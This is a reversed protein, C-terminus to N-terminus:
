RIQSIILFSGVGRVHSFTVQKNVVYAIYGNGWEGNQALLLWHSEDNQDFWLSRVRGWVGFPPKTLSIGNNWYFRPQHFVIIQGSDNRSGRFIRQKTPGPFKVVRWFSPGFSGLDFCSIRAKEEQLLGAFCAHVWRKQPHALLCFFPFCGAFFRPNLKNSLTNGNWEHRDIAPNAVGNSRWWKPTFTEFGNRNPKWVGQTQLYSQVGFVYLFFVTCRLLYSQFVLSKSFMRLSFSPGENQAELGGGGVYTMPWSGWSFTQSSKKWICSSYPHM